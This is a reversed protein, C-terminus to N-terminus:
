LTINLKSIDFKEFAFAAAFIFALGLQMETVGDSHAIRKIALLLSESSAPPKPILLACLMSPCLQASEV